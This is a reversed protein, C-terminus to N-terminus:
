SKNRLLNLEDQNPLRGTIRMIVEKGNVAIFTPLSVIRYRSVLALDDLDSSFFKILRTQIDPNASAVAAKVADPGVAPTKKHDYFFLAISQM